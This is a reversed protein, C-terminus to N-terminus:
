SERAAAERAAKHLLGVIREAAAMVELSAGAQLAREMVLGLAEGNEFAQLPLKHCIRTLSDARAHIMAPREHRRFHEWRLVPYLAGAICRGIWGGPCPPLPPVSYLSAEGGALVAEKFLPSPDVRVAADAM